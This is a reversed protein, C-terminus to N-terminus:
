VKNDGIFGPASSAVIESVGDFKGTTVSFGEYVLENFSFDTGVHSGSCTVRPLSRLNCTQTVGLFNSFIYAPIYLM